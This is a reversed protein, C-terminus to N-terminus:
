GGTAVTEGFGMSGLSSTFRYHIADSPVFTGAVGLGSEFSGKIVFEFGAM